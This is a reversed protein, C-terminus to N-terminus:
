TNTLFIWVRLANLDMQMVRYLGEHLYTVSVLKLLSFKYLYSLLLIYEERSPQRQGSFFNDFIDYLKERSFVQRIVENTHSSNIKIIQMEM